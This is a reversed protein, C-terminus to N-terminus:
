RGSGQIVLTRGDRAHPYTAIWASDFQSLPLPEGDLALALARDFAIEGETGVEGRLLLRTRDDALPTVESTCYVMRAGALPMNVWLCRARKPQIELPAAKPVVLDGGPTRLHVRTPVESGRVNAAVILRPGDPQGETEREVVYLRDGESSVVRETGTAVLFLDRFLSLSDETIYRPFLGCM